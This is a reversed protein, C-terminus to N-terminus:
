VRDQQDSQKLSEHFNISAGASTVDLASKEIFGHNVKLLFIAMTSNVEKGGFLGDDILEEQQVDMIKKCTDGFNPYKEQWENACERSIGLERYFETLKPLRTQERGCMKMYEDAKIRVTEEDYLTPRGFPEHRQKTMDKSGEGNTYENDCQCM